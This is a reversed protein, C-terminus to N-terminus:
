FKNKLYGAPKFLAGGGGGGGGLDSADWTPTLHTNTEDRGREGQSPCPTHSHLHWIFLFHTGSIKSPATCARREAKETKLWLCPLLCCMAHMWWHFDGVKSLCSVPSGGRQPLSRKDGYHEYGKGLLAHCAVSRHHCKNCFSVFSDQQWQQQGLHCQFKVMLDSQFIPLSPPLLGHFKIRKIPIIIKLNNSEEWSNELYIDLISSKRSM